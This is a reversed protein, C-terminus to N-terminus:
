VQGWTRKEAPHTLNTKVINYRNTTKIQNNKLQSSGLHLNKNQYEEATSSTEKWTLSQWKKTGQQNGTLVGKTSMSLM